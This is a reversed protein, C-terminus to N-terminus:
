GKDQDENQSANGQVETRTRQVGDDLIDDGRLNAGGRDAKGQQQGMEQAIRSGGKGNPAQSSGTREPQGHDSRCGGAQKDSTQDAQETEAGDAFIHQGARLLHARVVRRGSRSTLTLVM